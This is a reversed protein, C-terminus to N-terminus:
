GVAADGISLKPPGDFIPEFTTGANTTKWVGGNRTGVYLTYLHDRAPADPVAFSTVWAGARSPGLARYTFGKLLDENFREPAQQGYGASIIFLLAAVIAAPMHLRTNM